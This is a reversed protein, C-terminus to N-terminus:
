DDHGGVVLAPLLFGLLATGTFTDFAPWTLAPYPNYTRTAQGLFLFGAVAVLAGGTVLWERYGWPARRYTTHPVSRGTLWLAGWIAAGGTVILAMGWFTQRWATLLGGSLIGLLGLISVMRSREHCAAQARGTHATATESAFGHSAMAEALQLARELGGTLLPMFLPLWDRLRRMRHGRIAQAERIQQMQRLTTPAFTVAISAVVAVPYFARPIFRILDRVPVALNLVTFAAFLATLLLGNLAGYVLAEATIPGGILPWAAPIALLVTEGVRSLLANILAALPIVYLAFRGPALPAASPENPQRIARATTLFAALALTLYLPNRTTSVVILAAVLWVFWAVAHLM